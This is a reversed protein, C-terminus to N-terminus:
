PTPARSFGFGVVTGPDGFPDAREAQGGDTARLSPGEDAANGDPRRRVIHLEVDLLDWGRWYLNLRM